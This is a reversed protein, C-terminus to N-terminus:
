SCNADAEAVRECRVLCGVRLMAFRIQRCSTLTAISTAIMTSNSLCSILVIRERPQLFHVRVQHFYFSDEQNKYAELDAIHGRFKVTVKTRVHSLDVISSNMTCVVLQYDVLYRSSIDRPRLFYALRVRTPKVPEAVADPSDNRPSTSAPPLFEM